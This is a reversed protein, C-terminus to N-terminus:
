FHTMIGKKSNGVRGTIECAVMAKANFWDGFILTTTNGVGHFWSYVLVKELM